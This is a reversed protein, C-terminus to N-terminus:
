EVAVRKQTAREGDIITVMLHQDALRDAKSPLDARMFFRAEQGASMFKRSIEEFYSGAKGEVIVQPAALPQTSLVILTFKGEETAQVAVDTAIAGVAGAEAPVRRAFTEILDAERSRVAAGAALSLELEQEYPICIKECLGLQLRLKLDLPAGKEELVVDIPFVVEDEYGWSGIGYSEFYEPVPWHIHAADLNRSGSWDFTPPIGAEGPSRWYTKWGPALRIQVGIRVAEQGKTGEVASVLQLHAQELVPPGDATAVLPNGPLCVFFVSFFLGITAIQPNKM